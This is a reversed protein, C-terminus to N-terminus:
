PPNKISNAKVEEVLNEDDQGSINKLADKDIPPPLNSHLSQANLFTLVDYDESLYNEAEIDRFGSIRKKSPDKKIKTEETM